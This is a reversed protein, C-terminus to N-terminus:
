PGTFGDAYCPGLGCPNTLTGDISMFDSKQQWSKSDRRPASHPDTGIRPPVNEIPPAPTGTCTNPPDAIDCGAPRPPGTDWYVIASGRFGALPATPVGFLPTVDPSRGPYLAPRYARAGITRAEVDAAVNAVQHDGFAPHLLVQHQPSNPLPEDTMHHAYGNAEGRDWLLQILSLILPRELENPYNDYLGLETDPSGQFEGEAYDDFDVSRRLLTSYNMGPVGHVARDFDPTLATLGGSLIGGQSNGDYFLRRTDLLSAGTDTRFAANTSAGAPHIMWRGLYMFNVYGQQTRDVLTNFKSLDQLLSLVNPADLTSMGAWDTACFTINAAQGFGQPSGGTVEGASGLLGHGYLSPRSQGPNGLASHPVTCIVNANTTNGPTRQPKGGAGLAFGSGPPCGSGDLYCPVAIQGTIRRATNANQQPTFDRRGDQEGAAGGVSDPIDPNQLFVPSAGQVQRDALNSDGLLTFADDRISVARDTLSHRSAVTFDWALYLDSRGIGADGLTDFIQEFHGRRAEIDPDSSVLGDRYARFEERPELVNGNEDRMRRLAVIYREGEDFNRGPRVILTVDKRDAPNSDIEAWILQRELTRANVVVVPQDADFSRAMDTIPVAGTRRFAEANDLGPVRTIIKNGPSFGDARNQDTPDIPKQARNRPMSQLNLNLRRGTATAADAVTFHDNPFPYLCVSPDLFDCRDANDSHVAGLPRPGTGGSGSGGGSGTGGGGTGGGAGTGGRACRPDDPVLRRGTASLRRSRGRAGARSRRLARVRGSPRVALVRCDGMIRRGAATLRLRFARTGPRRMRVRRPRVIVSRRGLDYAPGGRVRQATASLRLGSPRRARVRVRLFGSTVAASPSGTLLRATAAPRASTDAQPVGGKARSADGAALAAGTGGAVALVAAAAGLRRLTM